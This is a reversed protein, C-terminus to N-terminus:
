KRLQVLVISLYKTKPKPNLHIVLDEDVQQEKFYEVEKILESALNIQAKLHDKLDVYLTCNLHPDDDWNNINSVIWDLNQVQLGCGRLATLVGTLSLMKEIEIQSRFIGLVKEVFFGVNLFNVIM